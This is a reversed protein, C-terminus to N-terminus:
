PAWRRVEEEIRSRIDEWKVKSLMRPMPEDEADDFYALSRLLHMENFKTDRYRQRVSRMLEAFTGGAELYAYLDVFDKKSGRGAVAIVKMAAIDRVDALRLGRYKVPEYLFPVESRLYSLRVGDLLVHLTDMEMTQVELAGLEALKVRLAQPEFSEATFFDLDISIRHGLQLALATGGALIWPELINAKDLTKVVSWAQPSLVKPNM